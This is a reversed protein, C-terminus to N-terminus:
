GLWSYGQEEFPVPNCACPSIKMEDSGTADQPMERAACGAVALALLCVSLLRKM